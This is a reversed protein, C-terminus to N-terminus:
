FYSYFKTEFNPNQIVFSLYFSGCILQFAEVLILYSKFSSRM